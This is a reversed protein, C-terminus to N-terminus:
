YITQLYKRGNKRYTTAKNQTTEKCPMNKTQYLGMQRNKSTNQPNYDLFANGLDIDLCKKM